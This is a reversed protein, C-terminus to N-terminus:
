EHNTDVADLRISSSQPNAIKSILLEVTRSCQKHYLSIKLFHRAHPELLVHQVERSLALKRAREPECDAGLRGPQLTLTRHPQANCRSRAASDSAEANQVHDPDCAQVAAFLFACKPM